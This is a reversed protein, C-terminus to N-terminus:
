DAIFNYRDKDPNSRNTVPLKTLCNNAVPGCYQRVIDNTYIEDCHFNRYGLLEYDNIEQIEYEYFNSKELSSNPKIIPIRKNKIGYLLDCAVKFDM